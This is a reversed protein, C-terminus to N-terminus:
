MTLRGEVVTPLHGLGMDTEIMRLETMEAAIRQTYGYEWRCDMAIDTIQVDSGDAKGRRLRRLSDRLVHWHPDLQKPQAMANM